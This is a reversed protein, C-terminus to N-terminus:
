GRKQAIQLLTAFERTVSGGFEEVLRGLEGFLRERADGALLLHDSYTGLVRVQEEATYKISWPYLRTQAHDFLGSALWEGRETTPIDEAPPFGTFRAALAPAHRAYIRQSAAVFEDSAAPGRVPHNRWIALWGLPALMGAIRSVRTQPNLWHYATAAYALDYAANLIPPDEIREDHIQGEEVGTGPTWQDFDAVTITVSPFAALRDRAIAAMEAGLEVCDIRLGREAFELTAHGTGSGIELLRSGVGLGAIAEVDACVAAPYGPRMKDYLAAVRNFTARPSRDSAPVSAM